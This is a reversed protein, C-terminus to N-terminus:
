KSSKCIPMCSCSSNAMGGGVGKHEQTILALTFYILLAAGLASRRSLGDFFPAHDFLAIAEFTIRSRANAIRSLSSWESGPSWAGPSCSTEPDKGSFLYIHWHALTTM